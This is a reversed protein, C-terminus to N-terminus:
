QKIFQFALIAFNLLIVVAVLITLIANKSKVKELTKETKGMSSNLSSIGTSNSQIIEKLEINTESLKKREDSGADKVERIGTNGEKIAEGLSSNLSEIKNEIAGLWEIKSQLSASIEKLSFIREDIQTIRGNLEGSIETGIGRLNSIYGKWNDDVEGKFLDLAQVVSEISKTLELGSQAVTGVQEKASEIEKLNRELTALSQRINEELTM